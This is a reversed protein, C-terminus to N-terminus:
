EHEMYKEAAEVMIAAIEEKQLMLTAIVNSIDDADGKMYCFDKKGEEGARIFIVVNGEPVGKLLKAVDLDLDNVNM